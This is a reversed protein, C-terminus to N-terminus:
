LVSEVEAFTPGYCGFRVEAGLKGKALSASIKEIRGPSREMYRALPAWKAVMAAEAPTVYPTVRSAPTVHGKSISPTVDADPTVDPRSMRLRQRQKRARAQEKAKDPDKTPM